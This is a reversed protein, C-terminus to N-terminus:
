INLEIKEGKYDLIVASEKIDYVKLDGLSDGKYLFYTKKLTKDEIIAQNNDGTIIGLLNLNALIEGRSIKKVPPEEIKEAIPAPQIKPAEIPAEPVKVQTDAVVPLDAPKEKFIFVDAIFIIVVVGIIGALIINIKTFVKLDRGIKSKSQDSRILNLLKGEPTSETM